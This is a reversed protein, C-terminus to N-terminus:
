FALILLEDVVQLHTLGAVAAITRRDVHTEQGKRDEQGSRNVESAERSAVMAHADDMIEESTRRSLRPLM